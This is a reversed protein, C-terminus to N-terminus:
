FRVETYEGCMCKMRFTNTGKGKLIVNKFFEPKQLARQCSWCYVIGYAADFAKQNQLMPTIMELELKELEDLEKGAQIKKFLEVQRETLQSM